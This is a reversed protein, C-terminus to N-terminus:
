NLITYFFLNKKLEIFFNLKLNKCMKKDYKKISKFLAMYNMILFKSVKSEDSNEMIEIFRNLKYIEIDIILNYSDVDDKSIERKLQEYNVYFFEWEKIINNKLYEGFKM